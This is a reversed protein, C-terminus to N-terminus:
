KAGEIEALVAQAGADGRAAERKVLDVAWGVGKLAEREVHEEHIRADINLIFGVLTDVLDDNARYKSRSGFRKGLEEDALSMLAESITTGNNIEFARAIVIDYPFNPGPDWHDSEHFAATIDIHGVIGRVGNAADAASIKVLPIGYLRSWEAYRMATRELLKGEQQWRDRAWEARGMACVHLGRRNGQEMAAWAQKKDSVMRVEEGDFDIMTQYSGNGTRELYGIVSTNGSESETSHEVILQKTNDADNWLGNMQERYPVLDVGLPHGGASDGGTAVASWQGYDHELTINVDVGVGGVTRQDIEIQHIHAAPHDGNISPDGSWNHQWFWTAVGDELAWDICRANGYMGTWELGVVSAWGRLFPAIQSNWEQLSPNSDVPAYIPRNGPGGAETHYKLAIEAHRVGGDFGGLWDSTAGKGYQYNSVIELGLARLRDCYDRRLPKAGFNAGPRSDSFYGIVGDYGAYNIAQPDILSASFDLLKM